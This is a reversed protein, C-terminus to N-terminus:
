PPCAGLRIDHTPHELLALHPVSLVMWGRFILPKGAEGIELFAAADPAQDAPRVVCHRVLVTLPGFIQTEGVKGAMSTTRAMVKDILRLDVKDRPVWESQVAPLPAARPSSPRADPLPAAPLPTTTVPPPVAPLFQGPQLQPATSPVPLPTAQIPMPQAQQARGPVNVAPLNQASAPAVAIAAAVALVLRVLVPRVLVPRVLVIV